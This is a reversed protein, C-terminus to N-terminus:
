RNVVETSRQHKALVSMAFAVDEEDEAAARVTAAEAALHGDGAEQPGPLLEEPAVGVADALRFLQHLPIHQRGREINTISTRKLGVREAVEDQTLGAAKRANRLLQGFQGYLGDM